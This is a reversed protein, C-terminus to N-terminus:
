GIIMTESKGLNKNKFRSLKNGTLIPHSTGKALFEGVIKGVAPAMMFGHGVFGHLQFFGEVEDVEGLIPNRDPTVDYTGAWQRMVKVDSLRPLRHVLARAMLTLFRLSSRMEIGPPEAPDGLGGVIEGRMSQSFYLGSGIQSVLPTLFPKLPESVLIEHREPINPLEVNAMKAIQPAWAATANIVLDCEITGRNTVVASIRGATEELGTVETFTAVKVGRSTAGDAYGWLFPWPFLIGDEPNYSAGVLDTHNLGEAVNKAQTASLLRTPVGLRNQLAVNKELGEMHAKQTAVFLLGGQRLWINIGLDKAFDRCIALSGKMLDVNQETAWQERIGGGNRGSAGSNIYSRELVVVDTLGNKALHYATALGMIGGGIIVIQTKTPLPPLDKPAPPLAPHPTIAPAEPTPYIEPLYEGAALIGLPTPSLPTRITSPRLLHPDAGLEVLRQATRNLCHKGQCFGTGLGTFRKVSELDHHGAAWAKDVDDRSVDECTCILNRSM